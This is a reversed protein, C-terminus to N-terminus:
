SCNLQRETLRSEAFRRCPLLGQLSLARASCAQLIDLLGALTCPGYGTGNLVLATTNRCGTRSGWRALGWSCLQFVLGRWACAFRGQYKVETLVWLRRSKYGSLRAAFDAAGVSPGARATSELQM